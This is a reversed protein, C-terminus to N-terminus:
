SLLITLENSSGTLASVYVGETALIGDDPIYVDSDGAKFKQTLFESAIKKFLM